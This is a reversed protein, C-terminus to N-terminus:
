TYVAMTTTFPSVPQLNRGPLSSRTAQISLSLPALSRVSSTVMKLTTLSAAATPSSTGATRSSFTNVARVQRSPSLNSLSTTQAMSFYLADTLNIYFSRCAVYCRVEACCQWANTSASGDTKSCGACGSRHVAKFKNFTGTAIPAFEFDATGDFYANDLIKVWGTVACDVPYPQANCAITETLSPCNTGGFDNQKSVTRTRAKQGAGCTKSCASWIGWLSVACDVPCPQANCAITETLSPCNTGGFDNQKSVTRIRTQQGAGCTKSCAGWPEYATVTCDVAATPSVPNPVGPKECVYAVSPGGGNNHGAIGCGNDNWLGDPRLQVCDEGGNWGHDNPENSAFNHYGNDEGSHWQWGDVSHGREQIIDNGGIWCAGGCFTQLWSNEAASNITVLFSNQSSCTSRAQAWTQTSTGKKYCNAGYLTWGSPCTPAATPASTPVHTGTPAATSVWEYTSSSVRPMELTGELFGVTLVSPSSYGVGTARVCAIDSVEFTIKLWSGGSAALWKYCCCGSGVDINSVCTTGCCGYHDSDSAGKVAIADTCAVDRYAAFGGVSFVNQESNSLTLRDSSFGNIGVATPASSPASSPAGCVSTDAYPIYFAGNTAGSNYNALVNSPTSWERKMEFKTMLGQFPINEQGYGGILMM